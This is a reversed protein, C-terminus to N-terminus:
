FPFYAIFRKMNTGTKDTKIKENTARDVTRPVDPFPVIGASVGVKTGVAGVSVGVNTGVAGVSVGVLVNTGVSMVSVGMAVGVRGVLWGVAVGVGSTLGFSVHNGSM